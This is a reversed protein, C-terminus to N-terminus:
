YVGTSFSIETDRRNYEIIGESQIIGIVKTLLLVRQDELDSFGEFSSIKEVTKLYCDCELIFTQFIKKNAEEFHHQNDKLHFKLNNFFNHDKSKLIKLNYPKSYDEKWLKFIHNGIKVTVTEKTDCIYLCRTRDNQSGQFGKTM